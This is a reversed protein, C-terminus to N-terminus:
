NIKLTQLPDLAHLPQIEQLSLDFFIKGPPPPKFLKHAGHCVAAVAGRWHDKILLSPTKLM